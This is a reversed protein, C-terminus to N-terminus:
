LVLRLLSLEHRAIPPEGHLARNPHLLSDTIKSRLYRSNLVRSPYMFYTVVVDTDHRPTAM